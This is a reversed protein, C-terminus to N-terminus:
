IRSSGFISIGDGDGVTRYGYHDEFDRILGGNSKVTRHIHINHIVINHVFQLTIGCEYAIYVNSGRSDITKYSQVM